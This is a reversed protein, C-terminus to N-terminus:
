YVEEETDEEEEETPCPTTVRVVWSIDATGGDNFWAKVSDDGPSEPRSDKTGYVSIMRPYTTVRAFYTPYWGPRNRISVQGNPYQLVQWHDAQNKAFLTWFLVFLTTVGFGAIVVSRSLLKQKM